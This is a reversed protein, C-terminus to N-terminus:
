ARKKVDYRDPEEFIDLVKAGATLKASHEVGSPINYSEGPRYTRTEGGITLELSGELVTGWQGKHAHPPIEVDEHASFFVVLGEDSRVANTSVKDEPIPLVLSSFSRIFEPLEM